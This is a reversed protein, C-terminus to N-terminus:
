HTAQAAPAVPIVPTAPQEVHVVLALATVQVAQKGPYVKLEVAPVQVALTKVVPHVAGHAEHGVPARVVQKDHVAPFRKCPLPVQIAPVAEVM